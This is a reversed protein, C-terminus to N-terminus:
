EELLATASVEFRTEGEVSGVGWPQETDIRIVERGTADRCREIVECAIVASLPYPSSADLDEESFIATKDIFTWCRGHAGVLQCEVLGPQPDDSVYRTITVKVMPM